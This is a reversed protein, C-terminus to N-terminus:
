KTGNQEKAEMNIANHLAQIVMENIAGQAFALHIDKLEELVDQFVQFSEPAFCEKAYITLYEVREDDTMEIEIPSGIKISAM